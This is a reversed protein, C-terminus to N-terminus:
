RVRRADPEVKKFGAPVAFQSDDVPAQSFSSLETTMELLSGPTGNGSANSSTNSPPPADSSTKKRSIGFKGGLASGLANGVSPREAPPQQPQQQQSDSTPQAGAAPQMGEAGMTIMQQVPVGDIKSAEKYVEAMGKSADPNSMFMNGGPTWNIKEAMRRYFDRVEKYGAIGPGIWMDTTIAMGGKQGTKEDTGEMTMKLIMEKCDIGGVQKTKGTANTEVKFNVQPQQNDGGKKMRQQMQELMQQMEDFTMVSYTKKQLDINTITQSALDIVSAHTTSRRLMRDGKVSITSQIPERAQKSFVGAVKMMGAVMGGTINATEQYTFDALLTASALMAIGAIM